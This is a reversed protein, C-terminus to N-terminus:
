EGQPSPKINERIYKFYAKIASDVSTTLSAKFHESQKDWDAVIERQACGHRYLEKAAELVAKDQLTM